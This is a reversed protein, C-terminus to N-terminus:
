SYIKLSCEVVVPEAGSVVWAARASWIATVLNRESFTEIRRQTGKIKRPLHNM